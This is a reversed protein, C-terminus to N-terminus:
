ATAPALFAGPGVGTARVPVTATGASSTVTVTGVYNTGVVSPAVTVNVVCSAGAALPLLAGPAPCASTAAFVPNNTAASSVTLPGYGTNLVTLAQAPSTVGVTQNGLLFPNPALAFSPAMGTGSLAVVLPVAGVGAPTITVNATKAGLSTPAFSLNVTCTGVLAPLVTGATCAGVPALAPFQFQNANVGGFAITNLTLPTAALNTITVALAPSTVGVQV